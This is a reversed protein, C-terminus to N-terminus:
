HFDKFMELTIGELYGGQEFKYHWCQEWEPTHEERYDASWFFSYKEVTKPELINEGVRVTFAPAETESHGYLLIVTFDLYQEKQGKTQKLSQDVGQLIAVPQGDSRVLWVNDYETDPVKENLDYWEFTIGDGGSLTIPAVAPGGCGVFAFTAVLMLFIVTSFRIGKM